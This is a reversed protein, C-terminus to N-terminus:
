ADRDCADRFKWIVLGIVRVNENEQSHGDKVIVPTQWLPDSSDPWFEYHEGSRRVRRASTEKLSNGRTREVIVLDGDEVDIGAAEVDVCRIHDGPQAFRNISTGEVVLDFQAEVPFRPDAPFPHTRGSGNTMRRVEDEMWVGAAAVGLVPINSGKEHGDPGDGNTQVLEARRSLKAKASMAGDGTLLWGANVGYARAYNTATQADFHNQGNEHARYTSGRWGFRNIADSATRYGASIRARKLRENMTGNQIM